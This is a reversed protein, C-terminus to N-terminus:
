KFPEAHHSKSYSILKMPNKNVEVIKVQVNLTSSKILWYEGLGNFTYELGDVTM